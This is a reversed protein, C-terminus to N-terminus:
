IFTNKNKGLVKLIVDSDQGRGFNIKEKERARVVNLIFKTMRARGWADTSTVGKRMGTNMGAAIGRDYVEDLYKIPINFFKSLTTKKKDPLKEGFTKELEITYKSQRSM